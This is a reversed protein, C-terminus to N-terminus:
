GCVLFFTFMILMVRCGLKDVLFGGLFPLVTNPASYATYLGNFETSSLKPMNSATTKTDTFVTALAAPNDYCYYSGFMVLSVLVLVPWRYWTRSRANTTDAGIGPTSDRAPADELDNEANAANAWSHGPSLPEETPTMAGTPTMPPAM